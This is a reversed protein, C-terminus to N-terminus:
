ADFGSWHRVDSIHPSLHYQNFAAMYPISGVHCRVTQLSLTTGRSEEELRCIFVGDAPKKEDDLNGM